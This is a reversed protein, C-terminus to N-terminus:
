NNKKEQAKINLWQIRLEEDNNIYKGAFVHPHRRILKQNIQSLVDKLTFHRKETHIEIIMILIYMIDGLEECINAKDNLTIGSLLENVEELLYKGLSHDSQKKDWPCGHTGRLRRITDVLDGLAIKDSDM